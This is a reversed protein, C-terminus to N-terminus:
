NLDKKSFIEEKSDQDVIIISDILETHGIAIIYEYCAALMEKAEQEDSTCWQGISPHCFFLDRDKNYLSYSVM